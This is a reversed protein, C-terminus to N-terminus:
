PNKYNITEKATYNLKLETILPTYPTNPIAKSATVAKALVTPYLNHLFSTLLEVRMFGSSLGVDFRTIPTVTNPRRIPTKYSFNQEQEPLGLHEKFLNYKIKYFVPVKLQAVLGTPAALTAIFPAKIFRLLGINGNNKTASAIIMARKRANTALKKFITPAVAVTWAGQNLISLEAKFHSNGSVVEDGDSYEAYHGQFNEEPLDGWTIKLEVTELSKQFVENSGIYFKSSKKPVSGFPHFPKAPNLVGVDNELILNRVGKVDVHIELSEINIKSLYDYADHATNGGKNKNGDSLILAFKVIPLSSAFGDQLVEDNYAVVAEDEPSLHVVFEIYPSGKKKELSIKKSGEMKLTLDNDIARRGFRRSPFEIDRLIGTIDPQVPVPHIIDPESPNDLEVNDDSIIVSSLSCPAWQNKGSYLCSCAQM